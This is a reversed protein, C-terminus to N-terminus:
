GNKQCLNEIALQVVVLNEVVQDRLRKGAMTPGSAPVDQSEVGSFPYLQGAGEGRGRTGEGVGGVKREGEGRGGEEGERVGLREKVM